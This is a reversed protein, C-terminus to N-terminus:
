AVCNFINGSQNLILIYIVFGFKIVYLLYMNPIYLKICLCFPHNVM